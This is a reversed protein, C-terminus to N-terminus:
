AEEGSAGAAQNAASRRGSHRAWRHALLKTEERVLGEDVGSPGVVLLCRGQVSLAAEVSDAGFRCLRDEHEVVIATM